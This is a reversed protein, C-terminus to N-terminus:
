VNVLRPAARFSALDRAGVCFMVVRLVGALEAAFDAAAEPGAAAARLFPGALGVLDAGLGLAIAVDMGSRVGGSAFVLRDGAVARAASVAQTTPIGWSRFALAIREDTGTLRHREVESWSTGGAGAVDVAAVGAAFLAAVVDPALGSGVEKVVVPAQLSLCLREIERLLGRFKPEGEPQLAEQLPNLHLVMADAGTLDLLRRCADVGTGQSLQGAGLNALLPIDPARERVDMGPAQPDELLVRGSGLGMALGHQQATEALIANLRAAERTGGTMCSVLIPARMPRGFLSTSLSVESLDIEPLALHEFRYKEFGASVEGTVEGALNIRLHDDKRAGTESIRRSVPDRKSM